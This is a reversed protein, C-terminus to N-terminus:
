TRYQSVKRVYIKLLTEMSGVKYTKYIQLRRQRVENLRAAKYKSCRTRKLVVNKKMKERTEESMTKGKNWPTMGKYFRGKNPYVKHGLNFNSKTSKVKRETVAVGFKEEIMTALEKNPYHQYNERLFDVMDDTWRIRM